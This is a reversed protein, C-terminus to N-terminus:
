DAGGQVIRGTVFHHHLEVLPVLEAPVKWFVYQRHADWSGRIRTDGIVLDFNGHEERASRYTVPEAKKRRPNIPKVNSEAAPKAAPDPVTAAPGEEKQEVPADTQETM